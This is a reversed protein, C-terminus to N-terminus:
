ITFQDLSDINKRRSSEKVRDWWDSNSGITIYVKSLRSSSHSKIINVLEHMHLWSLWPFMPRSHESVAGFFIAVHSFRWLHQVWHAGRLAPSAEMKLHSLTTSCTDHQVWWFTHFLINFKFQQEPFENYTIAFNQLAVWLKLCVHVWIKFPHM